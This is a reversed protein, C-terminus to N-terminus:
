QVVATSCFLDEAEQLEFCFVLQQEIKFFLGAFLIFTEIIIIVAPMIKTPNIHISMHYCTQSLFNCVVLWLCQFLFYCKNM